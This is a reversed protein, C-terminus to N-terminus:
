KIYNDKHTFILKKRLNELRICIYYPNERLKQQYKNEREM